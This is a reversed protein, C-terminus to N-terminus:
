GVGYCVLFNRIELYGIVSFGLFIYIKEKRKGNYLNLFYLLVIYLWKGLM